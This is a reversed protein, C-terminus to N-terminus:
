SQTPQKPEIFKCKYNLTVFTPKAALNATGDIPAVFIHYYWQEAPNGANNGKLANNDSNMKMGLARKLTGKVRVTKPETTKPGVMRYSVHPHELYDNPDSKTTATDMVAIGIIYANSNDNENVTTVTCTSESVIYHDYMQIIQDFARPSHGSLTINPDYLGNGSMVLVATTGAGPDLYTTNEVYKLRTNLTSPLPGKKQPRRKRTYKRVTSREIKRSQKRLGKGFAM